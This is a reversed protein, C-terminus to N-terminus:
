NISNCEIGALWPGSQLIDFQRPDTLLYRFSKVVQYGNTLATWLDATPDPLPRWLVARGIDCNPPYRGKAVPTEVM